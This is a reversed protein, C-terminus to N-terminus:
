SETGIVDQFILRNNTERYKKAGMTAMIKQKHTVIIKMNTPIINRQSVM